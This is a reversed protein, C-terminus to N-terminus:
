SSEHELRALKMNSLTDPKFSSNRKLWPLRPALIDSIKVGEGEALGEPCNKEQVPPGLFHRSYYRVASGKELLIGSEGLFPTISRIRQLRSFDLERQM